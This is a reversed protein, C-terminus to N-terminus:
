NVATQLKSSVVQSVLKGDAAPYKAKVAKIIQGMNKKVPMVGDFIIQNVEAEIQEETVPAPLWGQIVTSELRENEELDERGGQHYMEASEQRQKVMRKLITIEVNDDMPKTVAEKSANYKQFETKILRFVKLQLPDGNVTAESILSDIKERLM